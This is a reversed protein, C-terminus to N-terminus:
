LAAVIQQMRNSLKLTVEGPIAKGIKKEDVRVVPIIEIISGTLFIEDAQLLEEPTLSKEIFELNLQECMQKVLKRTIGALIYKSTPTTYIKRNKVMFVNSSTGETVWKDRVLIAEYSGREHATQKALINPLLNLSKIYCNAWREDEHIIVSVGDERETQQPPSVPKVTMSISVPVDPFLHQRPAIGRTIQLYVSCELLGSKAIAEQILDRFDTADGLIPLKIAKASNLLRELHEDMMFAKGNYVRIVEYIGDGFQHGREDIPIAREDLSIYKGNVYGISMFIGGRLFDRNCTYDIQQCIHTIKYIIEEYNFFFRM